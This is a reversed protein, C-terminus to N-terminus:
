AWPLGFAEARAKADNRHKEAVAEEEKPPIQWHDFFVDCLGRGHAHVLGVLAWSGTYHVRSYPIFIHQLVAAVEAPVTHTHPGTLHSLETLAVPSQERAAADEALLMRLHAELSPVSTAADAVRDWAIERARDTAVIAHGAGVQGNVNHANGHARHHFHINGGEDEVVSTVLALPVGHETAPWDEEGEWTLLFPVYGAARASPWKQADIRGHYSNMRGIMATMTVYPNKGGAVIRDIAAAPSTTDEELYARLADHALLSLSCRKEKAKKQMAEYLGPDFRFTTATVDKTTKKQYTKM